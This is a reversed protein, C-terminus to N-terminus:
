PQIRIQVTAPDVRAVGARDTTEIEVTLQYEGPGLGALDVYASVEEPAVRALGERTGRLVVDVLAPVANAKLGDRLNRLHVPRNAVPRERPGPQVDVTVTVSRPAVLRVSPDLLGVNVTETVPARADTVSVPETIAETAAKVASEPGTIAMMRPSVTIRGVVFGPAPEGEFSGSVMVERTANKEFMMAVSSPVVQIVQVGFPTRVLEPTVQYLRRGARASRLDLVAVIDGPSLRAVTGSSGRVRVDVVTPLEGVLELGPPFQQLELPIRLGREVVEEGAVVMWLLTALGLSLAKLGAHRFPWITTV